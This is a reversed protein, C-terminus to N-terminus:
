HASRMEKLQCSGKLPHSDNKNKARLCDAAVKGSCKSSTPFDTVALRNVVM